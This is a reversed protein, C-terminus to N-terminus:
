TAGAQTGAQAGPLAGGNRVGAIRESQRPKRLWKKFPSVSGENATTTCHGVTCVMNLADAGVKDGKAEAPNKWPTM